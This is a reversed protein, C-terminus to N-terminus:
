VIIHCATYCQACACSVLFVSGPIAFTQKYLYAAAFVSLVLGFNEERVQDVGDRKFVVVFYSDRCANPTAAIIVGRNACM